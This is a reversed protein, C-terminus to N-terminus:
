RRRRARPVNMNRVRNQILTGATVQLPEGGGGNNPLVVDSMETTCAGSQFLVAGLKNVNRYTGGFAKWVHASAVTRELIGSAFSGDVDLDM